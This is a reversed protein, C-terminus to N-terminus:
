TEMWAGLDLLRKLLEAGAIRLRHLHPNGVQQYPLQQAPLSALV